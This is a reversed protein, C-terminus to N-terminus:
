SKEQSATSRKVEDAYNSMTYQVKEMSNRLQCIEDNYKLEPVPTDFHGQTMDDALKILSNVPETWNRVYYYGM